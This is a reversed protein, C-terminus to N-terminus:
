RQGGTERVKKGEGLEGQGGEKKDGGEGEEEEEWGRGCEGRM